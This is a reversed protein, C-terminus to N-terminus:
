QTRYTGAIRLQHSQGTQMNSAGLNVVSIASGMGILNMTTAGGSPILAFIMTAGAPWTWRTNMSGVYLPCSEGTAYPLGSIVLDGTGTGITPTATVNMQFNIFRRVKIYVGGQSSYSSASTGPTAFAWTPTWTGTEYGDSLETGSFALAGAVSFWDIKGASDDWFMGRDAGPDALLSISDLMADSAQMQSFVLATTGLTGGRVSTCRYIGGGQEDSVVMGPFLDYAGEPGHKGGNALTAYNVDRAPAASCRYLGNEAPATQAMLLILDGAVLTRGGLADGANLATAITVNSTAVCSVRVIAKLDDPLPM